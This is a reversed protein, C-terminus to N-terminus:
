VPSEIGHGPNLDRGSCMIREYSEWFAKYALLFNELLRNVVINIDLGDNKLEEYIDRRIKIRALVFTTEDPEPQDHNTFNKGSM